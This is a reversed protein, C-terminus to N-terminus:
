SNLRLRTLDLLLYARVESGLKEEFVAPPHQPAPFFIFYFIAINELKDDYNSSNLYCTVVDM